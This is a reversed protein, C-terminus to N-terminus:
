VWSPLWHFCLSIWSESSTGPSFRSCSLIATKHRMTCDESTKAAFTLVTETSCARVTSKFPRYSPQIQESKWQTPFAMVSLCATSATGATFHTRQLEPNQLFVQWPKGPGLTVQKEGQDLLSQSPYIRFGYWGAHLIQVEFPSLKAFSYLSICAAPHSTSCAPLLTPKWGVSM